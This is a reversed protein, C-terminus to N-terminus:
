LPLVEQSLRKAAIENKWYNAWGFTDTKKHCPVCLTLGNSIVHRLGPFAKYPKIHHAHLRGRSGCERCAYGDREFVAKRWERDAASGHKDRHRLHYTRPKVGRNAHLIEIHALALCRRSCFKRGTINTVFEKSCQPCVATRCAMCRRQAGNGLFEVGCTCIRKRKPRNKATWQKWYAARYAKERSKM